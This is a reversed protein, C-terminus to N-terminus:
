KVNFITSEKLGKTSINGEQRSFFVDLDGRVIYDANPQLNFSFSGDEASVATEIQDNDKNSLYIKLGSVPHTTGKEVVKGEVAFFLEKAKQSFRYIDDMGKGGPRNSSIFGTLNDQFFYIGFDDKTSNFPAKLNVP